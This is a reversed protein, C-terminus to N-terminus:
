RRKKMQKVEYMKADSKKVMEEFDEYPKQGNGLVYGMSATLPIPLNNAKGCKLLYAELKAIDTKLKDESELAGIVLFEDGGMRVRLDNEPFVEKIGDAIGIIAVNGVDHGLTDNIHKLGDMDIYLFFVKGENKEYYDQGMQSYALRNHLGTLSDTISLDKLISNMKEIEDNMYKLATKQRLSVIAISLYGSVGRRELTGMLIDTLSYCAYGLTSENYYLPLVIFIKSTREDDTYEPYIGEEKSVEFIGKKTIMVMQEDYGDCVVHMDGSLISKNLSIGVQECGFHEAYRTLNKQFAELDASDSVCQLALRNCLSRNDFIAQGKHLALIKERSFSNIPICGCSQAKIVKAKTFTMKPIDNGNIKRLILELATQTSDAISVDVTSTSPIYNRSLIDNDFGTILFDKPAKYGDAIAAECYGRAMGDNACIVADPLHLGEAKFDEYAQIGDEFIYSYYKKHINEPPINYAKCCDEFANLRVVADPAGEPGGVFNLVKCNHDRLIHETIAYFAEYNDVKVASANDIPTEISVVPIGADVFRKTANQVAELYNFGGVAVLVGDYSKPNVLTFFEREKKFSMGDWEDIDFGVYVDIEVNKDELGANLGDLVSQLYETSWITVLLAIKVKDVMKNDGTPNNYWKITYKQGYINTSM